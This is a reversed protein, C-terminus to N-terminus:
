RFQACDELDLDIKVIFLNFSYPYCFPKAFLYSSSSRVILGWFEFLSSFWDFSNELELIYM